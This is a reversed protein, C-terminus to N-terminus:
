IKNKAFVYDYFYRIDDAKYDSFTLTNLIERIEDKHQCIEEVTECGLRKRVDEFIDNEKDEM